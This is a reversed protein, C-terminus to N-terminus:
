QLRNLLETEYVFNNATLAQAKNRVVPVGLELAVPQSASRTKEAFMELVRLRVQYKRWLSKQSTQKALAKLADQLSQCAQSVSYGSQIALDIANQDATTAEKLSREGRNRQYLQNGALAAVVLAGSLSLLNQSSLEILAVALGASMVAMEWSFRTVTKNQIRSVEHWFLLDRQNTNLQHWRILDIQIAFKGKGVKETAVVASSPKVARIVAVRSRLQEPLLAELRQIEHM